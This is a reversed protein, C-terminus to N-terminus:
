SSTMAGGPAGGQSLKHYGSIFTAMEDAHAAVWAEQEALSKGGCGEDM